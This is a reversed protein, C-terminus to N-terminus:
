QLNFATKIENFLEEPTRDSIDTMDFKKGELDMEINPYAGCTTIGNDSENWCILVPCDNNKFVAFYHYRETIFMDEPISSMDFEEPVNVMKDDDSSIIFTESLSVGDRQMDCWATMLKTYAFKASSLVSNKLSKEIWKRMSPQIKWGDGEINYLYFYEYDSEGNKIFETKVELFESVKYLHEANSDPNPDSIKSVIENLKEEPVADIDNGYSELLDQAAVMQDLQDMFMVLAENAMEDLKTMRINEYKDDTGEGSFVDAEFTDLRGSKEIREILDSPYMMTMIKKIDRSAANEYYSMVAYEWSDKDYDASGKANINADDSVATESVVDTQVATEATGSIESTEDSYSADTVKEIRDATESETPGCATISMMCVAFSAALTIKKKINM